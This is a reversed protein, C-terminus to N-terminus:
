TAAQVQAQANANAPVPQVKDNAVIPLEPEEYGALKGHAEPAPTESNTGVILHDIYVHRMQDQVKVMYSLPGLRLLIVGYKWKQSGLFNRVMVVDDPAFDRLKRQVKDVSTTAKLQMDEALKQLSPQLM